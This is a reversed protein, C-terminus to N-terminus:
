KALWNEVRLGRIRTFHKTNGTVVTLRNALATAGILIDKLGILESLINTDLLYM